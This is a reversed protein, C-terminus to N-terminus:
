WVVVHGAPGGGMGGDEDESESDEEDEEEIMLLEGGDTQDVIKAKAKAEAKAKAKEEQMKKKKLEAFDRFSAKGCGGCSAKYFKTGHRTWTTQEAFSHGCRANNCVYTEVLFDSMGATSVAPRAAVRPPPATNSSALLAGPPLPTADANQRASVYNTANCSLCDTKFNNMKHPRWSKGPIFPVQCYACERQVPGLLEETTKSNQNIKKRPKQVFPQQSKKPKLKKRKKKTTKAEPTEESGNNWSWSACFFGGETKREAPSQLELLEEWGESGQSM